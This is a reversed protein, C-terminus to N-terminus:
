FQLRAGLWIGRPAGPGLFYPRTDTIFDLVDDPAEGLLGFSEYSRDFLNSVRAFLSFQSNIQYTGRLNVVGFGSLPSLQNSEDGRMFQSSNYVADVGLNLRDNVSLEAGLKFQHRPIGPIHDGPSVGLTGAGSAFPHHPSRVEFDDEFSAVVQSYAAFWDVRDITGALTLEMGRRRTRDVNAFLGTARGTTQFIIDDRNEANYIGLQYVTGRWDGRLGAELNRTVVDELPPDALFANPLRCEFEVSDPDDGAAAAFDQALTFISENCSLEIPTPVRNAENYSVYLLSADNLSWTFGLAPNFRAFQHDGNLEPRQGSRDRLSIDVQNYRGSLTVALRESLDLTDTFYWSWTQSETAINTALHGLFSGTGRGQTSRTLPDMDALETRADFHATGRYYSIGSTFRNTYQGLDNLMLLQADLGESLQRRRSLNNIGQDSLVGSGTLEDSLDDFALEAPDIGAAQARTSLYSRLADVGDIGAQGGNCLEDVSLALSHEMLAVTDDGIDLLRQGGGAFECLTFDAADGNFSHTTNVRHFLTGSVQLRENLFHSGNLSLGALDNETIDPATFIAERDLALLGVPAGGNGTLESDGSQLNLNLASGADRWSLSAYLSLARSDSLDRWGQEDFFSANLYYGWRGDNGGSELNVVNRDWSGVTWEAQRGTFNFGDKMRISLAGGLSNLGFLPNAGSLLNIGAIASEPLLDWNVADGLPENIRVGNQYVAIGQPLGLLPSATFGRFQLDPQLPNNQAANVSVSALNANLFDSLDLSMANALDAGAASQVAYPIKNLAQGLGSGPTTGIVVIENESALLVASSLSTVLLLLALTIVPQHRTLM